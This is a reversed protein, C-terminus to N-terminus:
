DDGASGHRHSIGLEGLISLHTLVRNILKPYLRDRCVFCLGNMIGEVYMMGRHTTLDQPWWFGCECCFVWGEIRTKSARLPIVEEKSVGSKTLLGVTAVQKSVDQTM